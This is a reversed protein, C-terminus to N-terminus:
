PKPLVDPRATPKKPTLEMVHEDKSNDPSVEEDEPEDYLHYHSAIEAFRESAEEIKMGVKREILDLISHTNGRTSDLDNETLEHWKEMLEKKLDQWAHGPLHAM